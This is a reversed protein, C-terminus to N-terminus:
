QILYYISPFNVAFSRGDLFAALIYRAALSVRRSGAAGKVFRRAFFCHCVKLPFLPFRVAENEQPCYGKEGHEEGKGRAPVACVGEKEDADKKEDCKEGEYAAVSLRELLHVIKFATEIEDVPIECADVAMPDLRRFHLEVFVSLFLLDFEGRVVIASVKQAFIQRLADVEM